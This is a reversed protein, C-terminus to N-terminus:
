KASVTAFPLPSYHAGPAANLSQQVAPSFAARRVLECTGTAKCLALLISFGKEAVLVKDISDFSTIVGDVVPFGGHSLVPSHLGTDVVPTKRIVSTAGEQTFVIDGVQVEKATKLQSCCPEGEGGAPLHHGPTLTLSHGTALELKLFTAEADPKAISFSSVTDTTLVGDSTAAVIADGEKLADVRSRRSRM